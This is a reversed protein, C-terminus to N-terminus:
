ANGNEDSAGGIQYYGELNDLEYALLLDVMAAFGGTDLASLVKGELGSVSAIKDHFWGAFRVVETGGIEERAIEEDTKEKKPLFLLRLRQPIRVTNKGKMATCYENWLELSEMDGTNGFDALLDLPLMRGVRGRKLDMRTLEHGIGSQIESGEQLKTVYRALVAAGFTVQDVKVGHLQSLGDFGHRSYFSESHRYYEYNLAAFNELLVERDFFELVHLHPHWGNLGYTVELATIGGVYGAQKRVRKVLLQAAVWRRAETILNVTESLRDEASHPITTIVHLAGMGQALAGVVVKTVEGARFFRIKAGCVPCAWVLCCSWVGSYHHVGSNVKVVVDSGPVRLGCKRCREVVCVRRNVYRLAYRGEQRLLRGVVDAASVYDTVGATLDKQGASKHTISLM